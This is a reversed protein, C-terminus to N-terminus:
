YNPLVWVPQLLSLIKTCPSLTTCNFDSLKQDSDQIWWKSATHNPPMITYSRYSKPEKNTFHSSYYWHWQRNHLNSMTILIIYLIDSVNSLITKYFILCRSERIKSIVALISLCVKCISLICLVGMAGM